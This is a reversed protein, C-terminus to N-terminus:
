NGDSANEKEVKVAASRNIWYGAVGQEFSGNNLLGRNQPTGSKAAPAAPADETTIKINDLYLKSDPAGPKVDWYLMVKKVEKGQVQAPVPGIKWAFTQWKDTVAAPTKLAKRQDGVGDFIMIPKDGQLMASMTLKPGGAAVSARADCSIVYVKEPILRVGQVVSTTGTAPPTIAICQMGDTSDTTDVRVAAPRNLWYGGTGQEFSSNQFPVEDAVAVAALAFLATTITRTRIM